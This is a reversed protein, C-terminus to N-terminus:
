CPWARPGSSLCHILVPPQPAPGTGAQAGRSGLLCRQARLAPEALRMGAGLGRAGSRPWPCGQRSLCLATEVGVAATLAPLSTSQPPGQPCSNPTGWKRLLGWLPCPLDGIIGLVATTWPDIMTLCAKTPFRSRAKLLSVLSQPITHPEPTKSCLRRLGRFVQAFLSTLLFPCQLPSPCGDGLAANSADARLVLRPLAHPGQGPRPTEPPRGMDLQSFASGGM